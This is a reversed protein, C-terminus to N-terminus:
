RWAKLDNRTLNETQLQLSVTVDKVRRRDTARSLDINGFRTNGKRKNGM